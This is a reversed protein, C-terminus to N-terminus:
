LSVVIFFNNLTSEVAALQYQILRDNKTKVDKLFDRVSIQAIPKSFEEFVTIQTDLSNM